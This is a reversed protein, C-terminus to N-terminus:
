REDEGPERDQPEPDAPADKAKGNPATPRIRICDVTKAGFTTTTPFLTIRQGVWAETKFGYIAAVTRANTICLALKKTKGQFSVIPKKSSKGGEGVIKGAAVASITVTVDRGDLDYAYLFDKDYLTRVDPM